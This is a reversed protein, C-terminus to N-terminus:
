LALSQEITVESFSQMDLLSILDSKKSLRLKDKNFCKVSVDDLSPIEQLFADGKREEPCVPINPKAKLM